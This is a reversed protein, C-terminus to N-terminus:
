SGNAVLKSKAHCLLLPVTCYAIPTTRDSRCGIGAGNACPVSLQCRCSSGSGRCVGSAMRVTGIKDSDIVPDGVQVQPNQNVEPAKAFAANATLVLLIALLVSTIPKM